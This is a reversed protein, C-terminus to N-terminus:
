LEHGLKSQENGETNKQSGTEICTPPGGRKGAPGPGAGASNHEISRINAEAESTTHVHPAVM